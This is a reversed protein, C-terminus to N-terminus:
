SLTRKRREWTMYLVALSMGIIVLLWTSPAPTSPVGAPTGVVSGASVQRSPAAGTSCTSNPCTGEDSQVTFTPGVVLPVTGGANTLASSFELYLATTGTLSGSGLTVFVAYNSAFFTSIFHYTAGPLNEGATTTINVSSYTNTSADYVFSGSAAGGDAFTVGSLTWTVPAAIAQLATLSLLCCMRLNLM